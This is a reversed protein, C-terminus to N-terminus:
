NKWTRLLDVVQRINQLMLDESPSKNEVASLKNVYKKMDKALRHYNPRRAAWEQFLNLIQSVM